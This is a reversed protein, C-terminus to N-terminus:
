KGPGRESKEEYLAFSPTALKTVQFSSHCQLLECNISIQRENIIHLVTQNNKEHDRPLLYQNEHCFTDELDIGTTAILTLFYDAM